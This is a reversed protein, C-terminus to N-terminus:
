SLTNIAKLLKEQDAELEAILDKRSNIELLQYEIESKLHDIQNQNKSLRENLAMVAPNREGM